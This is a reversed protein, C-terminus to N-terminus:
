LSLMFSIMENGEEEEKAKRREWRRNDAKREADV